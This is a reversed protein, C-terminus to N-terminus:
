RALRILDKTIQLIQAKKEFPLGEISEILYNDFSIDPMEEKYITSIIQDASLDLVHCLKLFTPLSPMKRGNEIGSIYHSDLNLKAGLLIQTLGADTRAKKVAKGIVARQEYEAMVSEIGTLDEKHQKRLTKM